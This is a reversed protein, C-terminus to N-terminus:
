KLGKLWELLNNNEIWAPTEKKIINVYAKEITTIIALLM